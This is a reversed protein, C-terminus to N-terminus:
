WLLVKDVVHMYHYKNPSVEIQIPKDTVLYAGTKEEKLGYAWKGIADLRYIILDDNNMNKCINKEQNLGDCILTHNKIFETPTPELRMDKDFIAKNNPVLFHTTDVSTQFMKMMGSKEFYSRYRNLQLEREYQYLLKNIGKYTSPHYITEEPEM